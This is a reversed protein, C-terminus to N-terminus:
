CQVYPSSICRMISALSHCISPLLVASTTIGHHNAQDIITNVVCRNGVLTCSYKLQERSRKRNSGPLPLRTTQWSEISSSPPHCCLMRRPPLYFFTAQFFAKM